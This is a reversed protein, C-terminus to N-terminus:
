LKFSGRQLPEHHCLLVFILIAFVPKLFHAFGGLVESPVRQIVAEVTHQIGGFLPQCVLLDLQVRLDLRGALLSALNM